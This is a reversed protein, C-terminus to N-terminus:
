YKKERGFIEWVWFDFAFPLLEWLFLGLCFAFLGM